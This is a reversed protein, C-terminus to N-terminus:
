FVILADVAYIKDEFPVLPNIDIEKIEKGDIKEAFPIQSLKVLVKILEEKNVPPEGRWESLINKSRLEQIMDDGDQWQIPAIRFTVDNIVEAFIGGLGFMVCYGFVNDNIIGAILERKSSIYKQVLFGDLKHPLPAELIESLSIFLERKNRIRLKVLGAETKHPINESIGKLVVPYGIEEAAREIIKHINNSESHYSIFREEPITIGYKRLIDKSLHEPLFKKDM